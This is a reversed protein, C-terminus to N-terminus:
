KGEDQAGLERKLQTAISLKEQMANNRGAPQLLFRRPYKELMQKLEKVAHLKNVLKVESEM